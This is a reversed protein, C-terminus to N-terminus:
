APYRNAEDRQESRRPANSFFMDLERRINDPEAPTFTTAATARKSMGGFLVHVPYHAMPRPDCFRGEPFAGDTEM